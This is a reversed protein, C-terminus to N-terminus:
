CLVRQGQFKKRKNLIPFINNDASSRLTCPPSYLKLLDPLFTVAICPIMSNAFPNVCLSRFIWVCLLNLLVSNILVFCVWYIQPTVAKTLSISHSHSGNLVRSQAVRSVSLMLPFSLRHKQSRNLLEVQHIADKEHPFPALEVM